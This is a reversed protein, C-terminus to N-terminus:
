SIRTTSEVIGLLRDREAALDTARAKEQDALERLLAIERNKAAMLEAIDPTSLARKGSVNVPKHLPYVRELEAPDIRWQGDGDKRGSLRGSV